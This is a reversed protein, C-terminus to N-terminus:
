NMWGDTKGFIDHGFVLGHFISMRMLLRVNRGFMTPETFNLYRFCGHMTFVAVFTDFNKIMM